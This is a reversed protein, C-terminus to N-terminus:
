VAESAVPESLTYAEDPLVPPVVVPVVVPVAVPAATPVVVPSLPFRFPGPAPASDPETAPLNGRLSAVLGYVTGWVGYVANVRENVKDINALLSSIFVFLKRMDSIIFFTAGSISYFLGCSTPLYGM